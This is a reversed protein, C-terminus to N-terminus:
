RPYLRPHFEADAWMLHDSEEYSVNTRIVSRGDSRTLVVDSEIM